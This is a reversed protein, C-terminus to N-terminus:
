LVQETRTIPLEYETEAITNPQEVAVDNALNLTSVRSTSM